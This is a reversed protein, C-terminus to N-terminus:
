CTNEEWPSNERVPLTTCGLVMANYVPHLEWGAVSQHPMELFEQLMKKSMIMSGLECAQLNLSIIHIWM